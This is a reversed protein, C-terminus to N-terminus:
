FPAFRASAWYSELLYESQRKLAAAHTEEWRALSKYFDAVPGPGAEEALRRYREITAQELQLGVSLATMEWHAEAIRAKLAPSFVPSPGDLLSPGAELPEVPEGALLHAYNRALFALHNEEEQALMRFTERGQEDATNQAAVDYFSRGTQETLISEKLGALIKEKNM